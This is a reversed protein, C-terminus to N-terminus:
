PVPAAFGPVEDLGALWGDEAAGEFDLCVVGGVLEEGDGIGVSVDDDGDGVSVDLEGEGVLPVLEPPIRPVIMPRSYATGDDARPM